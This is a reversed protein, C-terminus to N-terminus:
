ATHEFNWKNMLMKFYLGETIIAKFNFSGRFLQLFPLFICGEKDGVVVGVIKIKL